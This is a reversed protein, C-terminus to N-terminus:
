ERAAGRPEATGRTRYHADGQTVSQHARVDPGTRARAPEAEVVVTTAASGCLELIRQV